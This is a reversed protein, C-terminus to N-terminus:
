NKIQEKVISILLYNKSLTKIEKGKIDENIDKIDINNYTTITYGNDLLRMPNLLNLLENLNDIEIKKHQINNTSYLLVKELFSLLEIDRAIAINNLALTRTKQLNLDLEKRENQIIEIFGSQSKFSVNQLVDKYEKIINQSLYILIKYDNNFQNKANALEFQSMKLVKDFNTTLDSRFVGVQMYFYKASATPTKFNINSVLDAVVEDPEHGIGTFIPISIECILKCIDYDNFINLDMPSGGGRIIVIAEVNYTKAENLANIIENKAKDGQVSTGFEKVKFNRFITNHFLEKTFDRYADTGISTILGIRKIIRPTKIKKQNDFIGEDKLRKITEKKKREIEGHSFSVDIDIINLKLGYIKHFEIKVNFLVNNGAKLILLLDDGIKQKLTDFTRGWINASIQSSTAGNVTDVLEVYYHGGKENIKSIEATIWYNLVGFNKKFHNEISTNLQTLTYIKREITM